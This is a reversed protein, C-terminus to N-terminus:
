ICTAAALASAFDPYAGNEFPDWLVMAADLTADSVGSPDHVTVALAPNEGFRSDTSIAFSSLWDAIVRPARLLDLSGCPSSRWAWCTLILTDVADNDANLDLSRRDVAILLDPETAAIALRAAWTGTEDPSVHRSTWASLLPLTEPRRRTFASAFSASIAALQETTTTYMEDLSGGPLHDRHEYLLSIAVDLNTSHTQLETLAVTDPNIAAFRQLDAQAAIIALFSAYRPGLRSSVFGEFCTGCLTIGSAAANAVITRLTGTVPEAVITHRCRSRAHLVLGDRHVTVPRDADNPAPFHADFLAFDTLLRNSFPTAPRTMIRDVTGRRHGAAVAPPFLFRGRSIGPASKSYPTVAAPRHHRVRRPAKGAHHLRIRRSRKREDRARRRPRTTRGHVTALPRQAHSLQPDLAAGLEHHFAFQHTLVSYLKLWGTPRPPFLRQCLADLQARTVTIPEIRALRAALKECREEYELEPDTELPDLRIPNHM